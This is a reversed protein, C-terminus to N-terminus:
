RARPGQRRPPPRGRPRRKQPVGGPPARGSGPTAAPGPAAEWEGDTAVAARWPRDRGSLADGALRACPRRQGTARQVRTLGVARQPEGTRAEPRGWAQRREAGEPGLGEPPWVRAGGGWGGRGGRGGAAGLGAAEPGRRARVGRPALRPRGGGAGGPGGTGSGLAPLPGRAGGRGPGEPRSVPARSGRPAHRGAGGGERGGAAHPRPG